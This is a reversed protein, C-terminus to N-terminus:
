SVLFLLSNLLIFAAVTLCNPMSAPVLTSMAMEGPAFADVAITRTDAGLPFLLGGFPFGGLSGPGYFKKYMDYLTYYPGMIEAVFCVFPWDYGHAFCAAIWLAPVVSGAFSTAMAETYEGHVFLNNSSGTGYSAGSFFEGLRVIVSNKRAEENGETMYRYIRRFLSTKSEDGDLPPFRVEVAYRRGGVKSAVMAGVAGKFEFFMVLVDANIEESSLPAWPKGRGYYVVVKKESTETLGLIRKDVEEPADSTRHDRLFARVEKELPSRGYLTRLVKAGDEIAAPYDVNIFLSVDEEAAPKTRVWADDDGGLFSVLNWLDDDGSISARAGFDDDKISDALKTAVKEVALLYCRNYGPPSDKSRAYVRRHNAAVERWYGAYQVLDPASGFGRRGVYEEVIERMKKVASRTFEETRVLQEYRPNVPNAGKKFANLDGPRWKKDKTEEYAITNAMCASWIHWPRALQLIPGLVNKAADKSPWKGAAFANKDIGTIYDFVSGKTGMKEPPLTSALFSLTCALSTFSPPLNGDAPVNLIPVSNRDRIGAVIDRFILYATDGSSADDSEAERKIAAYAEAILFLTDATDVNLPVAFASLLDRVDESAPNLGMDALIANSDPPRVSLLSAYTAMGVSLVRWRDRSPGGLHNRAAEELAMCLIRRPAFVDSPRISYVDWQLKLDDM